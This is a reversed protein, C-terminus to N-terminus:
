KKASEISLDNAVMMKILEPFAVDPEWGLKTRAKTPDGILLDVEAPRVLAPDIQWGTAPTWKPTPYRSAPAPRQEPIDFGAGLLTNRGELDWTWGHYGCRLGKPDRCGLSLPVHRHPCRDELVSARGDPDRFVVVPQNLVTIAVPADGLDRSWAVVYWADNLFM